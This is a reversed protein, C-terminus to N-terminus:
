EEPSSVGAFTFSSIRGCVTRRPSLIVVMVAELFNSNKIGIIIPARYFFILKRLIPFEPRRYPGCNLRSWDDM